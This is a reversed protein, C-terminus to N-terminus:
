EVRRAVWQGRPLGGAALEYNQWLGKLTKGADDLYGEIQVDRGRTSDIRQLLLKGNIFTGQLSGAAGDSLKYQGTVLTGSQELSFTGRVSGPMWSVDWSGTLPERVTAQSSALSAIRTVLVERAALLRRIEEFWRSSQQQLVLLQARAAQVQEDHWDLRDVTLNSSRILERDLAEETSQLQRHAEKRRIVLERYSRTARTLLMRAAYDQERLAAITPGLRTPDQPAAPEGTLELDTAPEDATQEDETSAGSASSAALLLAALLRAWRGRSASGGRAVMVTRDYRQTGIVPLM